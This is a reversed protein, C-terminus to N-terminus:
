QWFFLQCSDKSLLCSKWFAQTKCRCSNQVQQIKCRWKLPLHLICGQEHQLCTLGAKQIIRARLSNLEAPSKQLAPECKQLCPHKKGSAYIWRSIDGWHGQRRYEVQNSKLLGKFIPHCSIKIQVGSPKVFILIVTLNNSFQHGSREWRQQFTLKIQSPSSKPTPQKSIKLDVPFRFNKQWYYRAAHVPGAHVFIRQGKSGQKHIPNIRMCSRVTNAGYWRKVGFWSELIPIYTKFPSASKEERSFFRPFISAQQHQAIMPALLAAAEAQTLLFCPCRETNIRGRRSNSSRKIAVILCEWDTYIDAITKVEEGATSEM